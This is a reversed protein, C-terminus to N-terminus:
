PMSCRKGQGRLSSLVLWQALTAEDFEGSLQWGHPNAGAQLFTQVCELVQPSAGAGLGGGDSRCLPIRVVEWVPANWQSNCANIAFDGAVPLLTQLAARLGAAQPGQRCSLSRALYHMCKNGQLCPNSCGTFLLAPGCSHSRPRQRRRGSAQGHRRLAAALTVGLRQSELPAAWVVAGSAQDDKATADAGHELLIGLLTSAHRASLQGAAEAAALLPTCGGHEADRGGVGVGSELLLRLLALCRGPQCTTSRILACLLSADRNVDGAAAAAGHKLLLRALVCWGNGVAVDLASRGGADRLDIDTGAAVLRGLVADCVMHELVSLEQLGSGCLHHVATQQEADVASACGGAALLAEVAGLQFGRAACSLPQMGGPGALTALGPDAALCATLLRLDGAAAARHVQPPRPRAACHSRNPQRAPPEEVGPMRLGTPLCAWLAFAWANGVLCCGEEDGDEPPLRAWPLELQSDTAGSCLGRVLAGSSGTPAAM